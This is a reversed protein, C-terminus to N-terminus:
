PVVNAADCLILDSYPGSVIYIYIYSYYYNYCPEAPKNLACVHFFNPPPRRERPIFNPLLQFYQFKKRNKLIRLNEEKTLDLEPVQHHSSKSATKLFYKWQNIYMFNPEMSDMLKTLTSRCFHCM